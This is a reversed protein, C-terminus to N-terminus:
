MNSMAVTLAQFPSFPYYVDLVFFDSKGDAGSGACRIFQVAVQDANAENVLVFNKRSAKAVYERGLPTIEVTATDGEMKPIKSVYSQVRQTKDATATLQSYHNALAALGDAQPSLPKCAVRNISGNESIVHPVIVRMRTANKGTEFHVHCLEERALKALDTCGAHNKFNSPNEGTGYGVVTQKTLGARIKGVFERSNKDPPNVAHPDCSVTYYTVPNYPKKSCVALTEGSSIKVLVNSHSTNQTRTLVLRTIIGKPVPNLMMYKRDKNSKLMKPGGGKSGGKGNGKSCGKGDGKTSRGAEVTTASRKLDGALKNRRDDGGNDTARRREEHRVGNDTARRREQHTVGNDTARRREHGSTGSNTSIRKESHGPVSIRQQSNRQKLPVYNDEFRKESVNSNQRRFTKNESRDETRRAQCRIEQGRSEYKESNVREDAKHSERGPVTLTNRGQSSRRAHSSKRTHSSRRAHGGQHDQHNSTM